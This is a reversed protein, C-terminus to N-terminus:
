GGEKGEPALAARLVELALHENGDAIHDFAERIVASAKAMERSLGNEERGEPALAAIADHYACVLEGGDAAQLGSEDYLRTFETLAERLREVEARAKALEAELMNCDKNAVKLGVNQVGAETKWKELEARHWLDDEFLQDADASLLCGHEFRERLEDMREDTLPPSTM